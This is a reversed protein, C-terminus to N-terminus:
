GDGACNEIESAVLPDAMVELYGQRVSIRSGNELDHMMVAHVSPQYRSEILIRAREATIETIGDDTIHRFVPCTM